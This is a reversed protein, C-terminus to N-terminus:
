CLALGFRTRPDVVSASSQARHVEPLRSQSCAPVDPAFHCRGSVGDTEWPCAASCDGRYHCLWPDLNAHLPKRLGLLAYRVTRRPFSTFRNILNCSLTCGGCPLCDNTAFRGFGRVDVLSAPDSEAARM